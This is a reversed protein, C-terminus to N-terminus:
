DVKETPKTMEGIALLNVEMKGYKHEKEMEIVMKRGNVTIFLVTILNTLLGKYFKETEIM